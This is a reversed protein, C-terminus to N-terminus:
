DVGGFDPDSYWADWDFGVPVVMMNEYELGAAELIATIPPLVRGFAPDGAAVAIEFLLPELEMPAGSEAVTAAVNALVGRIRAADEMSPEEGLRPVVNLRGETIEFGTLVGPETLHLWRTHHLRYGKDHTDVGAPEGDIMLPLHCEAVADVLLLDAQHDLLEHSESFDVTFVTGEFLAVPDVVVADELELLRSSTEIIAELVADPDDGLDYGLDILHDELDYFNRPGSALAALLDAVPDNMPPVISSTGPVPRLTAAPRPSGAGSRGM